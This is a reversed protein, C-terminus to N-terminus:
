KSVTETKAQLSASVCRMKSAIQGGVQVQQRFGAMTQAPSHRIFVCCMIM